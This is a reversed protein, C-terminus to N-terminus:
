TITFSVFSLLIKTTSNKKNYVLYNYVQLITLAIIINRGSFSLLIIHNHLIIIIHQPILLLTSSNLTIITIIINRKDNKDTRNIM